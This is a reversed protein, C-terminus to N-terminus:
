AENNAVEIKPPLPLQPPSISMPSPTFSNSLFNGPGMQFKKMAVMNAMTISNALSSASRKFLSRPITFPTENRKRCRDQLFFKEHQHFYKIGHNQIVHSKAHNKTRGRYECDPLPCVWPKENTHLRVHCVFNSMCTSQKECYPCSFDTKHHERLHKYLDKTKHWVLKCEPFPCQLVVTKSPASDPTMSAGVFNPLKPMLMPNMPPFMMPMHMGPFMMPPTRKSRPRGKPPTGKLPNGIPFRQMPPMGMLMPNPPMPIRMTPVKPPAPAARAISKGNVEKNPSDSNSFALLSSIEEPSMPKGMSGDFPALGPYSAMMPNPPTKM